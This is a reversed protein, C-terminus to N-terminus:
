RGPSSSGFTTQRTYKEVLHRGALLPEDTTLGGTHFPPLEAVEVDSNPHQYFAFALRSNEFAVSRPPNTTRHLTAPWHNGTWEALLDGVLVVLTAPSTSVEFWEGDADLVQLGGATAEASVLTFAGYDTHVGARLQGFQPAQPQPPFFLARLMSLEQDFASEFYDPALGFGGAALALLETGVRQVHRYYAEWTVRFHPLEPWLNPFAMPGAGPQGLTPTGVPGIDFKEKLDGHSDEDLSFAIGEAGAGSWGRVQEPAPQAVVAKDKEPLAFFAQTVDYLDALLPAPIRHGVVQAYGFRSCAVDLLEFQQARSAGGRAAETLDVSPIPLM